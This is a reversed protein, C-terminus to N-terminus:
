LVSSRLVRYSSRQRHLLALLGLIETARATVKLVSQLTRRAQAAAEDGIGRQTYLRFRSASSAPVTSESAGAKLGQQAFELAPRLRALLRQVADEPIGLSLQESSAEQQKLVALVLPQDWVARLSVALFRL